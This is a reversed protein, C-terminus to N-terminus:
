SENTVSCGHLGTFYGAASWNRFWHRIDSALEEVTGSYNAAARELAEGVTGGKLLTSLVHFEDEGLEVRRVIYDRRTIALRTRQAAPVEPEQQHRVSTAYEHVPFRFTALRLCPAPILRAALWQEPSMDRLDDPQLTPQDEIGPGDFVESYIRELRALDILFDAWDPDGNENQNVPRSLTLFDPFSRGLDCLTYSRPPHVELYEGALGAFVEEGLAQVLAPYEGLLVELLRSRYANSYVELREIGTQAKSRCIMEEVRGATLEVKDLAAPSEIGAAVGGPHVIVSQLWRQTADLDLQTADLGHPDVQRHQPTSM